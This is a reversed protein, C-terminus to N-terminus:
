NCLITIVEYKYKGNEDEKEIIAQLDYFNNNNTTKKQPDYIFFILYKPNERYYSEIDIKIQKIFEKEDKDSEKIMKIELIIGFEKFIFDARETKGGVQPTNEEPIIKPFLSKLIVHLLDQVDYEDRIVFKDHNKRRKLTVSKIANPFEKLLNIIIDKPEDHFQIDSIIMKKYLDELIILNIIGEANSIYEYYTDSGVPEVRDDLINKIVSANIDNINQIDSKLREKIKPYIKYILYKNELTTKDYKELLVREINEDGKKLIFIGLLEFINSRYDIGRVPPKSLIENVKDGDVDMNSYGCIALEKSNIPNNIDTKNEICNIYNYLYMDIGDNNEILNHKLRNIEEKIFVM